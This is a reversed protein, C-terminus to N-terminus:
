DRCNGSRFMPIEPVSSSTMPCKPDSRLILAPRPGPRSVNSVAIRLAVRWKRLKLSGLKM